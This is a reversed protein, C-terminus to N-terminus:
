PFFSFFVSFHLVDSCRGVFDNAIELPTGKLAKPSSVMGRFVELLSGLQVDLGLDVEGLGVLGHIHTTYSQMRHWASKADCSSTLIPYFQVVGPFHCFIVELVALFGM